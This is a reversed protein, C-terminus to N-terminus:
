QSIFNYVIVGSVKVPQGNLKTPSFLAKDAAALAAETLYRPGQCLDSSKIVKGNEDILVKVVVMARISRGRGRLEYPFTPKPLTVAKGNLVTTQVTNTLTTPPDFQKRIEDLDKIREPQQTEHAMCIFTNTTKEYASSQAGKLTGYITLARTLVKAGNDFRRRARYFAGLAYLSNAVEENAPGFTSERLALSRKYSEESKSFEEGQFYVAGLRDLIPALAVDTPGLRTERKQLLEEFALKAENYKGMALNIDGVYSLSVEIRPDNSPLLRRRIELARKAASLAENLKHEGFLKLVSENLSVAEALEVSEQLQQAQLRTDSGPSSAVTPALALVLLAPVLLVFNTIM